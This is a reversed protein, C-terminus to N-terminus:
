SLSVRSLQTSEQLIELFNTNEPLKNFNFNLKGSSSKSFGLIDYKFRVDQFMNWRSSVRPEENENRFSFFLLIIGEKFSDSESPFPYELKDLPPKYKVSCGDYIKEVDVYEYVYVVLKEPAFTLHVLGLLDISSNSSVIFDYGKSFLNITDLLRQCVDNVSLRLGKALGEFFSLNSSWDLGERVCRISTTPILSDLEYPLSSKNGDATPGKGKAVTNTGSRRQKTVTTCWSKMPYTTSSSSSSTLGDRFSINFQTEKLFKDSSTQVVIDWDEFFPHSTRAIPGTCPRISTVPLTGQGNARPGTISREIYIEPFPVSKGDSTCRSIGTIYSFPFLSPILSEPTGVFFLPKTIVSSDDVVSDLFCRYLKRSKEFLFEINSFPTEGDFIRFKKRELNAEIILCDGPIPTENESLDLLTNQNVRSEPRLTDIKLRSLFKASDDSSFTIKVDQDRTKVSHQMSPIEIQVNEKMIEFTDNRIERSYVADENHTSRTHSTRSVPVTYLDPFDWIPNFHFTLTKRNTPPFFLKDDITTDLLKVQTDGIWGYKVGIWSSSLFKDFEYVNLGTPITLIQSVKGSFSVLSSDIDTESFGIDQVVSLFTPLLIDLISLLQTPQSGTFRLTIYSEEVNFICVCKGRIPYSRISQKILTPLSAVMGIEGSKIMNSEVEMLFQRALIVDEGRIANSFKIMTNQIKRGKKPKYLVAEITDNVEVKEFLEEINNSFNSFNVDSFFLHFPGSSYLETTYVGDVDFIDQEEVGSVAIQENPSSQQGNSHKFDYLEFIRSIATKRKLFSAFIGDGNERIEEFSISARGTIFESDIFKKDLVKRINPIKRFVQSSSLSNSIKELISNMRLANEFSVEDRHGSADTERTSNDPLIFLLFYISSFLIYHSLILETHLNKISEFLFDRNGSQNYFALFQTIFWEDYGGQPNEFDELLIQLDGEEYYESNGYLLPDMIDISIRQGVVLREDLPPWEDRSSHYNEHLYLLRKFTNSFMFGCKANVNM